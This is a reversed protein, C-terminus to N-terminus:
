NAMWKRARRKNVIWHALILMLWLLATDKDALMIGTGAAGSSATGDGTSIFAMRIWEIM